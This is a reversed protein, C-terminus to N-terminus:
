AEVRGNSALLPQLATVTCVKMAARSQEHAVLRERIEPMAAHWAGHNQALFRLPFYPMFFALFVPCLM